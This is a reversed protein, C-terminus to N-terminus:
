AKSEVTPKKGKELTKYTQRGFMEGDDYSPIEIKVHAHGPLSPDAIKGNMALLGDDKKDAHDGDYTFVVAAKAEIATAIHLADATELSYAAGIRRARAAIARTVPFWQLFPRDSELLQEIKKDSAKNRRKPRVEALVVYSLAVRILGSEADSILRLFVRSKPNPDDGDDMLYNIFLGSDWYQIIPELKGKPM